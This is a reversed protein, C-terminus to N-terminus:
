NSKIMVLLQVFTLEREGVALKEVGLKWLAYFSKPINFFSHHSAFLHVKLGFMEWGAHMIMDRTRGTKFLWHRAWVPTDPSFDCTWRSSTAKLCRVNKLSRPKSFLFLGAHWILTCHKWDLFVSLSLSCPVEEVKLSKRLPDTIFSNSPDFSDTACIKSLFIRSVHRLNQTARRRRYLSLSPSNWTRM